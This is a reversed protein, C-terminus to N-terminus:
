VQGKLAKVHAVTANALADLNYGGELVSVLRGKAYKQAIAKTLYTLEAFDEDKLNFHGLLDFQHADFGASILVLDPRFQEMAPILKENFAKFIENRSDEGGMIPCNMITGVGHGVGTHYSFGTGPYNGKEHTSFYFVSPDDDFINESGDGHHVDWDVILVKKIFPFKKQAYRAGIAVNNFICFGKGASKKAHHGPPRVNCFANSAKGSVVVDIATLVAGVALLAIDFSSPCVNVDGTSLETSGDLNAHLIEEEALHIYEETHCLLLDERTAKRPRLTNTKLGALELAHSIALFREPREVHYPGNLHKIYAPDEVILTTEM